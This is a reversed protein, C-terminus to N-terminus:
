ELEPLNEFGFYDSLQIRFDKLSSLVLKLNHSEVILNKEDSVMYSKTIKIRHSLTPLDDIIEIKQEIQDCIAAFGM